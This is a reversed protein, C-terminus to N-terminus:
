VICSRGSLTSVKFIFFDEMEAIKQRVAPDELVNPEMGGLLSPEKTVAALAFAPDARLSQPVDRVDLRWSDASMAALCVDPDSRLISDEPLHRVADGCRSAGLVAFEKEGRLIVPLLQFNNASLAKRAVDKDAKITDPLYRYNDASSAVAAMAVSKDAKVVEPLLPVGSRGWKIM